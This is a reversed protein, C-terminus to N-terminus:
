IIRSIGNAADESDSAEARSRLDCDFLVDGGMRFVRYAPRHCDGLLAPAPLRIAARGDGILLPAIALHLRDLLNAQLFTSVTVGGGEVFVRTCGRARLARMLETLDLGEATGAVAMVEASGFRTEGNEVLDRACVFLTEAGDDSFVRHDAPLRRGPDLVVRLPNSGEVLRTTLRPNDAAVTGAGVIVADCLARLRHMHVVNAPGTVWRSDGTHTAIFGDLSEGLHGVTIPTAPTASCIPLYLDVMAGCDNATEPLMWGRDPEWRLANADDAVSTRVLEGIPNLQYALRRGCRAAGEAARAAALVLRWAQDQGPSGHATDTLLEDVRQTM